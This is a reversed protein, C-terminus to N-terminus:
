GALPDVQLRAMADGVTHFSGAVLVTAGVDSARRLAEDFDACLMARLGRGRAFAVADAPSWLRTAPATPATTVVFCDVAPALATMMGRWDKDALVALVAAIPRPPAARRITDALVAAGDPNHAVDFIYRGARQFRGPLRVDALWRMAEDLWPAYPEGAADLTALATAANRAQHAGVLPTRMRRAGRASTLTFTTGDADVAIDSVAHSEAV